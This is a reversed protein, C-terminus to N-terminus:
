NDKALLIQYYAMYIELFVFQVLSSDYDKVLISLKEDQEIQKELDSSSVSAIYDVDQYEPNKFKESYYDVMSPILTKIQKEEKENLEIFDLSENQVNNLIKQKLEM